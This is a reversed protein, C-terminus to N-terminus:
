AEPAFTGLYAGRWASVRVHGRSEPPVLREDVSAVLDALADDPLDASLILTVRAADPEIHVDARGLHPDDAGDDIIAWQESSRTRHLREFRVDM